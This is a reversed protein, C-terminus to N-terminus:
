PSSEQKGLADLLHPPLVDPAMEADMHYAHRRSEWVSKIQMCLPYRFIIRCARM